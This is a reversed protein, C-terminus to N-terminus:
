KRLSVKACFAFFCALFGNTSQLFLFYQPDLAGGLTGQQLLVINLLNLYIGHLAGTIQKTPFHGTTPSRARPLPPQPPQRKPISPLETGQSLTPYRM